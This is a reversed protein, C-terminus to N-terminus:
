PGDGPLRVGGDPRVPREVARHRGPQPEQPLQHREPRPGGAPGRPGEVEPQRPRHRRLLARAARLRRRPHDAHGHRPVLVPRHRRRHPGPPEPRVRVAPHRRGVRRRGGHLRPRRPGRGHAGEADARDRRRGAPQLAHQHPHREVVHRRLGPRAPRRAAHRRREHHGPLPRHRGRGPLQVRAPPEVALRRPGRPRGRGRPGAHRRQLRLPQDHGAGVAGRVARHPRGDHHHHGHGRPAGGPRRALPLPRRHDLPLRLRLPHRGRLRREVGRDPRRGHPLGPRGAPLQRRAGRGGGPHRLPGPQRGAAPRPDAARRLPGPRHHLRLAAAAAGLLDARRDPPERPHGTTSRGNGGATTSSRGCTNDGEVLGEVVGVATGDGEPDAFAATVDSGDVDVRLDAVTARRPLAVQVLADGGSVQDAAGVARHRRVSEGGAADAAGPSAGGPVTCAAISALRWWSRRDRRRPPRGSTRGHGRRRDRRM